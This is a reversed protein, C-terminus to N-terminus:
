GSPSFGPTLKYSSNFSCFVFAKDPLRMRRPVAGRKPAVRKADNVQYSDPLLVVKETYFKEEGEPILIRDAIFYDMYPAGM